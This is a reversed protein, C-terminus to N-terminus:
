SALALEIYYGILDVNPPKHGIARIMSVAQGRHLTGHNVMHRILQWRTLHIPPGDPLSTTLTAGLDEPSLADFWEFQMRWIRAWNSALAALHDEHPTYIEAAGIEALPPLSNAILCETWFEESIFYHNLTALISRHSGPQDRALDAFAISSCAALLRQTAWASYELDLLLLRQAFPM